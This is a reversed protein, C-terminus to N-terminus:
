GAVRSLSPGGPGGRTPPMSRHYAFRAKTNKTIGVYLLQEDGDYFRYIATQQEVAEQATRESLAERKSPDPQKV